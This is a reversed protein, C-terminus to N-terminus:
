DVKAAYGGFAIVPVVLLEVDLCFFSVEYEVCSCVVSKLLFYFLFFRFWFGLGDLDVILLFFEIALCFISHLSGSLRYYSISKVIM